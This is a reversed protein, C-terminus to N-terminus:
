RDVEPAVVDLSAIFAVLDAIMMGPAIHEVVAMATFSGTRIRLRQPKETGDSVLYVGMEGRAAESRVYAEGRPPRLTGPVKAQVDGDPLRELAQRVIKCSEIMELVRVWFREFSDGVVTYEGTGVAVKFEFDPYAAYPEDRRLDWDVGSARLNPGSLGYSIATEASITGIDSLRKIYIENFTILRNFEDVIPEFHKIWALTKEKWGQPLDYSVGGIRVYNYTLRAGCLEEILDNVAERERLAHLFPTFAGIDMAMTGVAVLHSIIRNLEAVIVRLYNGRTPVEIGAIKEVALTYALNATMAAVYDVRDTYPVFGHYTVQEGIKEISRHLYGVDPKAKLIIEGDTTIVFRLVGHTSPHHPGMNLIMEDTKIQSM